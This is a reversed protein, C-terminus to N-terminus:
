ITNINHSKVLWQVQSYYLSKWKRLWSWIRVVECTTAPLYSSKQRRKRGFEDVDQVDVVHKTLCPEFEGILKMHCMPLHQETQIRYTWQTWYITNRWRGSCTVFNWIYQNEWIVLRHSSWLHSRLGVRMAIALRLIHSNDVRHFAQDM